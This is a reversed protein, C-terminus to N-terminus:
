DLNTKGKVYKLYNKNYDLILLRQEEELENIREAQKARDDKLNKEAWKIDKRIQRLKTDVTNGIDNLIKVNEYGEEESKGEINKAAKTKAKIDDRFEYYEAMDQYENHGGLFIRVIPVDGPQLEYNEPVLDFPDYGSAAAGTRYSREIFKGAGGTWYSAIHWLKDPNIDFPGSEYENGGTAKNIFAFTDRWWQPGRRAMSSQSAAQGPFPEMFVKTGYYNENIAVETFPRAFTPTVAKFAAKDLSSSEGFSVPIFSNLFGSTMFMAADGPERYGETVAHTMTGMNHFINYGYPLPVKIYYDEWTAKKFRPKRAFPNVIVMNRELVYDPIKEYFTRGDDDEPGFGQNFMAQFYAFLSIGAAIKQAPNLRKYYGGRGDPVKELTLMTRGFKATGQVGANFFLYFANIFSGGSGSRNFNVTLEKALYAAQEADVGAKRAAVFVSFRTANEMVQNVGGVYRELVAMAKKGSIGKEQMKILSEIDSAYQEADKQYPWATVAGFENFESWYKSLPDKSTDVQGVITQGLFSIAPRVGKIADGAIRQGYAQGGPISQEALLSMVGTQIDRTFNAGIFDPSYSTFTQSMFRGFNRIFQFARQVYEHVNGGLRMVNHKNVARAMSANAFEIFFSEGNVVVELYPSDQARMEAKTRPAKDKPGYIKYLDPQPNSALLNLLRTNASNKEGAMVTIHRQHFINELPNRAVSKRGDARRIGRFVRAQHMNLYGTEGAEDVAFGSLPVYTSYTAELLDITNQSELGYEVILRRTEAQFQMVKDYIKRMNESDLAEVTDKAWQDTQGSWNGDAMRRELSDYDKQLEDKKRNLERKRRATTESDNLEENIEAISDTIKSLEAARRAGIVRNREPAHMAYLFDSVDQPDIGYLRMMKAVDEMFADVQRLRAAAKGDFLALAMDYDQERFVRKGRGKEIQRQVYIVKAFKDQFFELIDLKVRAMTGLEELNKVRVTPADSEFEANENYHNDVWEEIGQAKLLNQSDRMGDNINGNNGMQGGQDITSEEATIWSVAAAIVNEAPIILDNLRDTNVIVAEQAFGGDTGAIELAELKMEQQERTELKGEKARREIGQYGRDMEASFYYGDFGAQRVIEAFTYRAIAMADDIADRSGLGDGLAKLQAEAPDM